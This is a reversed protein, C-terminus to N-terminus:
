SSKHKLACLDLNGPQWFMGILLCPKSDSRKPLCWHSFLCIMSFLSFVLSWESYQRMFWEVCGPGQLTHFPFTSFYELVEDSINFVCDPARFIHLISKSLSNLALQSFWLQSFGWVSIALAIYIRMYIFHHYILNKLRPENEKKGKTQYCQWALLLAGTFVAKYPHPVQQSNLIHSCIYVELSSWWASCLLNGGTKLLAVSIKKM